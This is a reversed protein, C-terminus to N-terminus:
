AGDNNKVEEDNQTCHGESWVFDDIPGTQQHIEKKKWNETRKEPINEMVMKWKGNSNVGMTSADKSFM